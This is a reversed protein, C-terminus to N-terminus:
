PTGVSNESFSNVFTENRIKNQDQLKVKSAFHLVKQLEQYSKINKSVFLIILFRDVDGITASMQFQLTFLFEMEGAGVIQCLKM